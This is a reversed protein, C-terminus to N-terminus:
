PLDQRDPPQQRRRKAELLKSATTGGPASPAPPPAPARTPAPRAAAAPRAGAPAPPLPVAPAAPAAPASRVRKLLADMTATPPPQDRRRRLWALLSRPDFQVRRAAVDLPLLIAAAALVWDLVSRSASRPQRALAFLGKAEAESGTLLRGGTREAIRALLRPDARFRRYEASYAVALTGASREERGSGAAAVAVRYRGRAAAAFRGQWRGPAVTQLELAESGGPGDIRAQVAALGGRPDRDEVTVVGNAGDQEVGLRLRTPAQSRAVAKALQETFAQYREWAVWSKGWNGGLDATFAAAAGTGFRWTALVPDDEEPDPGELVTQARPKPTTLVYGHLPPVATLGRLIPSPAAATATFTRNQIQSRKLTKAEKTFIQPLRAPDKPFYARGGTAEAIASFAPVEQDGHPFVSVTSVTIRADQFRKILEPPPPSPDGDSIIILHRAAADSALLGDCAMQMTTAFSPMDGPQAQQLLTALREYEGAPTLPFVWREGQGQGQGWEFDLVGVEDRAGLTKMAQRTIRKAWTNGEPFECTHLLIALAGKPMVKRANIDMSVPLAEEVPTRNWGGPGFGNRGGVMVLGTGLDRVADRLATQQAQDLADAPVNVLWVSEADALALPDPPCQHAPEAVVLRGTGRLARVLPQWDEANGEPDYYVAVKGEGALMLAGLALNNEAWGDSGPDPEVVAAYEYYGPEPALLPLRLRARGAGWSIRTRAIEAGNQRFVLAGSGSGLAGLVVAAEYTEGPRADHPLELRELWVENRHDYGVPLVDVPLGRRALREVAREAAGATAVGDSVLVIRIPRDDPLAAGALDLARELDTGGRDIRTTYAELPFAQRPPLEVAADRAFLVLGAQDAAPKGAVAALMWARARESAQEGISDSQDLCFMVALADSTRVARPEALAAVAAAVLLMRLWLALVARAGPIAGWGAAQLWWLWALLPALALLWWPRAFRLADAALAWGLAAALALAFAALPWAQRLRLPRRPAPILTRLLNM